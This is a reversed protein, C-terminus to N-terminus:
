LNQWTFLSRQFAPRLAQYDSERCSLRFCIPEPRRDLILCYCAYEEGYYTYSLEVLWTHKGDILLPNSEESTV